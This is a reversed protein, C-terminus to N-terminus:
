QDAKLPFHDITKSEMMKPKRQDVKTVQQGFNLTARLTDLLVVASRDVSHAHIELENNTQPILNLM